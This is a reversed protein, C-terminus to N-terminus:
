NQMAQNMIAQIHLQLTDLCLLPLQAHEFLLPLETCGLIIADIQHKSVLNEIIQIFASQTDQNVIGLELETSIKQGIYEIEDETPVSVEIGAEIFPQKFFHHKMTFKTGLLGVKKLGLNIAEDCTTQVISILPVVSHKQLEAFVMHPTNGTLAVIEAGSLTLNHIAQMLYTTLGQDDKQECYRLVDFVNLSEITIRPFFHEDVRQQLGYVLKKYYILTSEPGIGGILGIKKM